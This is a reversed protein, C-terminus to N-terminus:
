CHQPPSPASYVLLTSDSTIRFALRPLLGGSPPLLANHWGSPTLTVLCRVRPKPTCAPPLFASSAKQPPHFISHSPGAGLGM